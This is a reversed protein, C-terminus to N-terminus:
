RRPGKDVDAGASFIAPTAPPPALVFTPKESEPPSCTMGGMRKLAFIIFEVNSNMAEALPITATFVDDVTGGNQAEYLARVKSQLGVALAAAKQKQERPSMSM